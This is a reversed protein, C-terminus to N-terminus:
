EQTANYIILEGGESWCEFRAMYFNIVDDSQYRRDDMLEIDWAESEEDSKIGIISYGRSMIYLWVDNILGDDLRIREIENGRKM